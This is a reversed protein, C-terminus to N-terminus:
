KAVFINPLEIILEGDRKALFKALKYTTAQISNVVPHIPNNEEHIKIRANLTPSIPQIQTLYKM